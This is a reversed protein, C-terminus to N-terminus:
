RHRSGRGWQNVDRTCWENPALGTGGIQYGNRMRPPWSTPYNIVIAKKGVREAAEWIFEATVEGSDLAQHVKDLEDGPVHVNFCSLGHTISTAGTALTAWNPPTISPFPPLCNAGYVGNELLRKMCPMHGQQAYNYVLHALPADLGIMMVKKATAM